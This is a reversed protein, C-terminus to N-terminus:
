CKRNNSQQERKRYYHKGVSFVLVDYALDGAGRVVRDRNFGAGFLRYRYLHIVLGLKFLATCRCGQSVQLNAILTTIWASTEPSFGTAFSTWKAGPLRLLGHLPHLIHIM